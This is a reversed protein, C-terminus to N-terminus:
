GTAAAEREGARELPLFPGSGWDMWGVALVTTSRAIGASGSRRLAEIIRCVITLLLPISAVGFGALCLWSGVARM